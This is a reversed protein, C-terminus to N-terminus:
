PEIWLFIEKPTFSFGMKLYTYSFNEFNVEPDCAMFITSYNWWCRIKQYKCLFTGFFTRTISSIFIVGHAYSFM